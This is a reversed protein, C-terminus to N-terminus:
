ESVSELLTWFEPLSVAVSALAGEIQSPGTATLAAVACAMAIRHDGVSSLEAGHLRAGAYIDWGDAHEEIRAGMRSLNAVTAAIRDSEKVRLEKADRLKMGGGVSAAFVGLLPLEDILSAVAAGSIELSRKEPLPVGRVHISGVPERGEFREEHIAVDAGMAILTSLFATRTPNLGVDRILLDSGSLAAAAAILYAASSIDGPVFLNCSHLEQGGQISIRNGNRTLKAGFEPLMRETHDRTQTPEAVTTIGDVALGALLLASKIQASAIPLEYNIARLPRSGKISMPACGSDDLEIQAGMLRLPEAVRLMPRSRLSEDGTITATFPQGALLGALLRMTTGSNQANLIRNPESLGSAGAGQVVVTSGSRDIGVGLRQLCELTAECDRASSFNQLISSGRALSSLLAARHSISKDGPVRLEGALRSIPSVEVADEIAKGTEFDDSDVMSKLVQLSNVCKAAFAM